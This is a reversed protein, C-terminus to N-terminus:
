TALYDLLHTYNLDGQGKRAEKETIGLRQALVAEDQSFM